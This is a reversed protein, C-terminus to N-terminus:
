TVFLICAVQRMNQLHMESFEMVEKYTEVFSTSLSTKCKVCKLDDANAEEYNAMDVYGGCAVDRCAAAFM